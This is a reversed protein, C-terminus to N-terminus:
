ERPALAVALANVLEADLAATEAAKGGYRVDVLADMARVARAALGADVRAEALADVLAPGVVGGPGRGLHARLFDVYARYRGDADDCGLVAHLATISEARSPGRPRAGKTAAGGRPASPGPVPGDAATQPRVRWLLVIGGVIVVLGGALALFLFALSAGRREGDDTGAEGTDTGAGRPVEVGPPAEAVRLPLAASRAVEYGAGPQYYVFPISPVAEIEPDTVAVEYRIVRRPPMAEEVSEEKAGYVHFGDLGALRPQEILGLNGEGSVIVTLLFPQGVRVDSREVRAEVQFTGVAGAFGQPRGAAPPEDVHIRAVPGTITVPTSDRATREGMLNEEIVEAHAYTLTPGALELTGPQTPILRVATVLEQWGSRVKGSARAMSTLEGNLALRVFPEVGADVVYHEAPVVVAGKQQRLWPATIQAELDLPRRFLTAAHAAFHGAHYRVVLTVKVAQGVVAREPEVRVDLTAAEAPGPEEARAVDPAPLSGAILLCVVLRPLLAAARRTM